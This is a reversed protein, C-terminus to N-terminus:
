KHKIITRTLINLEIFIGKFGFIYICIVLVHLKIENV